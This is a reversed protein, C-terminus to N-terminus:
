HSGAAASTLRSVMSSIADLHVFNESSLAEEPVEVGFREQIFSVLSVLELSKIVGWELLPSTSTLGRADGHLLEQVIYEHIQSQIEAQTM